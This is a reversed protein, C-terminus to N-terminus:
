QNQLEREYWVVDWFQDFKRGAEHLTGIHVFGLREHLAISAKNPAGIVGYARHVSPEADLTALLTQYLAHGIGRGTFDSDVYVSTEVSSAYGPKDKVPVSSAYGAITEGAEAVLLRYPGNDAFQNFWPERDALSFPEIDLTVHSTRVYHNYIRVLAALDAAKASRISPLTM